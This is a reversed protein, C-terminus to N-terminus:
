DQALQWTQMALGFLNLAAIYILAVKLYTSYDIQSTEPSYIILTYTLCATEIFGYLAYAIGIVYTYSNQLKSMFCAM